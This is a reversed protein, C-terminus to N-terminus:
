FIGGAYDDSSPAVERLTRDGVLM